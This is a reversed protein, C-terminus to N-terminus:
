LPDPEYTKILSDFCLTRDLLEISCDWFAGGLRDSDLKGVVGTVIGLFQDTVNTAM